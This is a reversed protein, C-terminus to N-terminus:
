KNEKRRDKDYEDLAKKITNLTLGAEKAEGSYLIDILASTLLHVAVSGDGDINVKSIIHEGDEAVKGKLVIKAKGIQPKKFLTM